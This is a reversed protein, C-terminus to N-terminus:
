YTPKTLLPDTWEERFYECSDMWPQIFFRDAAFKFYYTGKGDVGFPRALMVRNVAVVKKLNDTNKLVLAMSNHDGSGKLFGIFEKYNQLTYSDKQFCQSVAISYAKYKDEVSFGQNISQKSCGSLLCILVFLLWKNM